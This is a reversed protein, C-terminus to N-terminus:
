DTVRSFCNIKKIANDIKHDFNKGCNELEKLLLKISQCFFNKVRKINNKTCEAVIKLAIGVKM